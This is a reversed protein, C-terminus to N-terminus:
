FIRRREMDGLVEGNVIVQSGTDSSPKLLIPNQAGVARDRRRPRCWRRAAWRSGRTPSSPTSRWTRRNSPRSPIATRGSSGALAAALLSKGAGSSTGQVMIAKAM